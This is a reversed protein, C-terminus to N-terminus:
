GTLTVYLERELLWQGKQQRWVAMYRGSMELGNKWSGVWHGAEVARQGDAAVEVTDSSRVYTLFAPDSFQAAFAAIVAAAGQIVGGDGVIVVVDETMHPRLREAEHSAILRNTLKRKALIAPEPATM